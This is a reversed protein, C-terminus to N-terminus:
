NLAHVQCPGVSSPNWNGKRSYGQALKLDDTVAKSIYFPSLKFLLVPNSHYNLSILYLVLISQCMMNKVVKGIVYFQSFIIEKIISGEPLRM